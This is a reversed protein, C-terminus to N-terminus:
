QAALTKCNEINIKGAKLQDSSFEAAAKELVSMMMRCPGCWVAYFDAIVVGSKVAEAFTEENWEQVVAM